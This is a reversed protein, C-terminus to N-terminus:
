VDEPEWPDDASLDDPEEAVAHQLWTVMAPTWDRRASPDLWLRTTEASYLVEVERTLCASIPWGGVRGVSALMASSLREYGGSVAAIRLMADITRGHAMAGVVAVLSHQATRTLLEPLRLRAHHALVSDQLQVCRRIQAEFVSLLRAARSDCAHPLSASVEFGATLAAFVRGKVAQKARMVAASFIADTVAEPAIAGKARAVSGCRVFGAWIAACAPAGGEVALTALGSALYPQAAIEVPSIHEVLGLTRIADGHRGATALQAVDALSPQQKDM